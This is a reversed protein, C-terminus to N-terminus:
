SAEAQKGHPYNSPGTARFAERFHAPEPRGDAGRRAPALYAGVARDSAALGVALRQEALAADEILAADGLREVWSGNTDLYIVRGDFLDNASVVCPQFGKAM